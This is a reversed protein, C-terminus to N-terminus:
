ILPRLRRADLLVWDALRIENRRARDQTWPGIYLPENVGPGAPVLLVSSPDEDNGLGTFAEWACVRERLAAFAQELSRDQEARLDLVASQVYQGGDNCRTAQGCYLIPALLNALQGDEYPLHAVDCGATVLNYGWWDRRHVVDRPRILGHTRTPPLEDPACWLGTDEIWSDLQRRDDGAAIFKIFGPSRTLM